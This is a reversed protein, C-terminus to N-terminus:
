APSSSKMQECHHASPLQEKQNNTRDTQQPLIAVAAIRQWPLSHLVGKRYIFHAYRSWRETKHITVYM